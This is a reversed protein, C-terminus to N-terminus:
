QWGDRARLIKINWSETIRRSRWIMTNASRM